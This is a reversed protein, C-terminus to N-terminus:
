LLYFNIPLLASRLFVISSYIFNQNNDKYFIHLWSLSDILKIKLSNIEDLNLMEKNGDKLYIQINSDSSSTKTIVIFIVLISAILFLKKM